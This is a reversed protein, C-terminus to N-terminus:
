SLNSHLFIQQAKAFQPSERHILWFVAMKKEEEPTNPTQRALFITGRWLHNLVLAQAETFQSM